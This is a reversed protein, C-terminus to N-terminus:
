TVLEGVTKWEFDALLRSWRAECKKLNLYHRFAYRRGLGKLRPQGPDIEWPHIYFVYPPDSRLIKSVGRRFIGYPLLRFYGGGAWPLNRGAASLCSVCVEHFGPRLEQIIVGEKMGSLHGYRDHAITPFQSSDYTYGEEALIDISWDTISFCPARYGKVECGTLDELIAKTSRIDERFEDESLNYILEHGYGHSAIEHGGEAIRRILDPHRDAIWGLIFCTCRVGRDAMLELMRDTNREVRREQTEWKERDVALNQVQFWDEVDISMAAAPQPAMDNM